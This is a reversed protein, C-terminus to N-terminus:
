EPNWTDPIWSSMGQVRCVFTVFVLNFWVTGMNPLSWWETPTLNHHCAYLSCMLALEPIVPWKHSFQQSSLLSSTFSWYTDSSLWLSLQYLYGKRFYPIWPCQSSLDSIIGHLIVCSQHQWNRQTSRAYKMWNEQHNVIQCFIGFWGRFCCIYIPYVGLPILDNTM